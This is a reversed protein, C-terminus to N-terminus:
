SVRLTQVLARGLWVMAIGVIVSLALYVASVGWEGKGGLNCIDGAFTSFTTFGGCFGTILMASQTSSLLNSREFIGSFLGFLFCGIINVAFTGLPFPANWFLACLRYMAFRGCTGFFGGLGVLLMTRIM